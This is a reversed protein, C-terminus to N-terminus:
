RSAGAGVDKLFRATAEACRHWTYPQAREFAIAAVRARLDADVVLREIAEATSDASEPDFYAGGEGLIAPMPGRNSCAIPLGSAMAELLINPLNECSSGFVFADAGRYRAPLEAYPVKGVYRIAVGHPDVRLLASRLRRLAPPYAGGILDLAVPLGRTRLRGVAEVLVWQHKYVDVISIAALRFPRDSTFSRWAAQPRPACRFREDVGHPITVSRGPLAGARESVRARAYDTLFIVGEARRFGRSQVRELIALRARMWSLGYRRRESPEFPLMNRCMTVLPRFGGPSGGGPEFLLDVERAARQPLVSRRWAVRRPLSGDLAPEPRPRIWSKDPLM